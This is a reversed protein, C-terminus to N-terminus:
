GFFGVRMPNGEADLGPWLPYSLLVGILIIALMIWTPSVSRRALLWWIVLVLLLPLLNPMISDLMQQVYVPTGGVRFAVAISLKVFGVVLAGMILNGLVGAGVILRNVTGSRLFNTVAARGQQYGQWWVLWGVGWVFAAMLLLYVIPGLINGETVQRSVAGGMAISMGIALAIPIVIGQQITDGVGSLPGMLGSKVANIAEDSIDAGAAREEEMAIVVGHIMGGIDPQTNFFVLHRKLAAAIEEKTKYLKKIIPTMSHAFGLGQMREWNWCAHSFFLWRLWARFVDRRTLLRPREATEMSTSVPVSPAGRETFWVHLFAVCTGIIALMLLNVQGGAMTTVAFGIFFYPWVNGHLLFKLNLAIGLAALMGSAAYLGKMIWLLNHVALWNLFEALAASGLAAAVAVPAGYLLLLFPQSYVYNARAVANINAQEAFRDARHAIISCLSMRLSFTLGGLLGLPGAVALAGETGLGSSLALATGLYGALGPDGPLAGGAAIWGLYLVNINAGIAVGAGPQGMVLGVLTGAVLPRYLVTFGLNAFWPSLSLYYLLGIVIAIPISVPRPQPQDSPEAVGEAHAVATGAVIFLLSVLLAFGLQRKQIRM